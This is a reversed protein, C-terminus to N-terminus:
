ICAILQVSSSSLRSAARKIQQIVRVRTKMRLLRDADRKIMSVVNSLPIDRETM